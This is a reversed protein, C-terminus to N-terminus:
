PPWSPTTWPRLLTWRLASDARFPSHRPLAALGLRAVRCPKWEGGHCPARSPAAPLLRRLRRRARPAAFGQQGPREAEPPGRVLPQALGLVVLQAPSAAVEEGLAAAALTSDSEEPLALGVSPWQIARVAPCSRSHQKARGALPRRPAPGLARSLPALSQQMAAERPVSPPLRVCPAPSTELQTNPPPRAQQRVVPAWQDGRASATAVSQGHLTERRFM